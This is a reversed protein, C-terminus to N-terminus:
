FGAAKAADLAAPYNSADASWIELYKGGSAAGNQLLRFYPGTPADPNCSGVAGGKCGAGSGGHKNSQWGVATSYRAAFSTVETDIVNSDLNDSQIQVRGPAVAAVEQVIQSAVYGM